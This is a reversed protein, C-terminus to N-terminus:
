NVVITRVDSYLGFCSTSTIKKNRWRVEYTGAAVSSISYGNNLYPNLTYVTWTSGGVLRYSFEVAEPLTICPNYASNGCTYWGGLLITNAGSGNPTISLPALNQCMDNRKSAIDFSLSVTGTYTAGDPCSVEPIIDLSVTSVNCYDSFQFHSTKFTYINTGNYTVLSSTMSLTHPVGGIVYSISVPLSSSNLLSVGSGLIVKFQAFGDYTGLTSCDGNKYEVVISGSFNFQGSGLCIDTPSNTNGRSSTVNRFSVQSNDELSEEQYVLIGKRSNESQIDKLKQIIGPDTVREFTPESKGENSDKKCKFNIFIAVGFLLVILCKRIVNKM